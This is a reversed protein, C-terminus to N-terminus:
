ASGEKEQGAKEQGAAPELASLLDQQLSELYSESNWGIRWGDGRLELGLGLGPVHEFRLRPPAHLHDELAQRIRLRTEEPVDFAARILLDGHALSRRADEDITRIKDLFALVACEQLDLCTLDELTRRTLQVVEAAIRRRFDDLLTARERDLEQRWQAALAQVQQRAQETMETAIKEAELRAEALMAARREDFDRLRAECAALQEGAAQERTAAEGLSAAIRQERADITDLIRRYLFRKLLWVLLLFNVIQAAVTLGDILM